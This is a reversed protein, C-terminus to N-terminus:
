NLTAWVHYEERPSSKTRTFHEAQRKGLAATGAPEITRITWGSGDLSEGIIDLPEAKRDSIGGFRIVLTAEPASIGASNLWVERMEDAFVTPSQHKLQGTSSYDVESPGGLFWNRLWQDPIYTRMGYYPPSTIIWNFAKGPMDAFTRSDRSDGCIALGEGLPQDTYYREAKVRILALVNIRPPLLDRRKWFKVSYNPKTAFTRPFQNSLYSTGAKALPGHLAGLIIAKLAKRAETSSDAMLGERLRCIVSLVDRHYALDWFEGVPISSPHSVQELIEVAAGVIGDPTANVLKAETLAAAIPSSDIGISPLGLLRAAYNTTGRGSFPDFVWEEPSADELIGLPFDLPFMTFYPCIANLSRNTAVQTIM